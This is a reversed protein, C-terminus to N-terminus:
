FVDNKYGHDPILNNSKMGLTALQDCRNNEVTEAHGRVWIFRTQHKAMLPILEKWLDANAKGRFNKARWTTLWNKSIPNVVYQSDSFVTVFYDDGKLSRFAERVAQIGKADEM